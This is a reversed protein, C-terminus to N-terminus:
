ATPNAWRWQKVVITGALMDGMTAHDKSDCGRYIYILGAIASGATAKGAVQPSFILTLLFGLLVTLVILLLFPSNRKVSRWFSIRSLSDRRVVKLGLLVKGVSKGFFIADKLMFYAIAFIFGAIAAADSTGSDAVALFLGTAVSYDVLVAAARRWTPAFAINPHM